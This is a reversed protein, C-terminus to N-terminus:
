YEVNITSLNVILTCFEFRFLVLFSSQTIIDELIIHIILFMNCLFPSTYRTQELNILTKGKYLEGHEEVDTPIYLHLLGDNM